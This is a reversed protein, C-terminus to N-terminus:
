WGYPHWLVDTGGLAGADMRKEEAKRRQEIKEEHQTRKLQRKVRREQKARAAAEAERQQRWVAQAEDLSRQEMQAIDRATLSWPKSLVDRKFATLAKWAAVEENTDKIINVRKLELQRNGRFSSITCKVKIVTMIDVHRGDILVDFHGLGSEIQVNKVTTNSEGIEVTAPNKRAIKVDMCAGSSDDLTIITTWPGLDEIAVIPAVLYM